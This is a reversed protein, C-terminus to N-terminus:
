FCNKLVGFVLSILRWSCPPLTPPPPLPPYAAQPSPSQYFWQSGSQFRFFCRTLYPVSQNNHELVNCYFDKSSPLRSATRALQVAGGPRPPCPPSHAGRCVSSGIREWVGHLVTVCTNPPRLGIQRRVRQVTSRTPDSSTKRTVAAVCGLTYWPSRSHVTPNPQTSPPTDAQKDFCVKNASSQLVCM